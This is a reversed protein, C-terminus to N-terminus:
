PVLQVIFATPQHCLSCGLQVDGPIQLSNGVEGHPLLSPGPSGGSTGGVQTRTGVTVLRLDAASAVGVREGTGAFSSHNPRSKGKDPM